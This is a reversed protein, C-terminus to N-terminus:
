GAAAERPEPAERRAIAEARRQGRTWPLVIESLRVSEAAADVFRQRSM